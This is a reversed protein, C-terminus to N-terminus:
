INTSNFSHSLMEQMSRSNFGSRRVLSSETVCVSRPEAVYNERKKNDCKENEFYKSKYVFNSLVCNVYFSVLLDDVSVSDGLVDDTSGCTATLDDM